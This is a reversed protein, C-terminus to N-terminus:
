LRLNRFQRRLCRLKDRLLVIDARLRESEWAALQTAVEIEGCDEAAIALGKAMVQAETETSQAQETLM